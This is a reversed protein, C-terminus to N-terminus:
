HEPYGAWILIKSIWENNLLFYMYVFLEQGLSFFNRIESHVVPKLRFCASVEISLMNDYWFKMSCIVSMIM